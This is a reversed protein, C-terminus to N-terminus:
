GTTSPLGPVRHMLLNQFRMTSAVNLQQITPKVRSDIEYYTNQHSQGSYPRFRGYLGFSQNECVISITFPTNKTHTGRGVKIYFMTFYGWTAIDETHETKVTLSSCIACGKGASKLFSEPTQHHGYAYLKRDFRDTPNSLESYIRSCIAHLFVPYRVTLCRVERM